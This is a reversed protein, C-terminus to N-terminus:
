SLGDQQWIVYRAMEKSMEVAGAETVWLAPLAEKRAVEAVRSAGALFCVKAWVEARVPDPNLVTIATLGGSAPEGTRPDIIHHVEQGGRRWRLVRISSTAIAIDSAEIVAVPGEGGAPDEVAIRWPTGPAAEGAVFCDGGANILFDSMERGLDQAAWRLALGKGIGGLDIRRPGLKALRIMPVLTPKWPDLPSRRGAGSQRSDTTGSAFTREYGLGVLDDHVRPDFLGGTEAYAIRAERLANLLIKPVVHWGNPNENVHTLPSVDFRTCVREVSKFLAVVADLREDVEALHGPAQVEVISAMAKFTRTKVPLDTSVEPSPM